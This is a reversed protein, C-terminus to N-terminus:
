FQFAEQTLSAERVDVSIETKRIGTTRFDDSKEIM